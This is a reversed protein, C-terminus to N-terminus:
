CSNTFDCGDKIAADINAIDQRAESEADFVPSSVADDPPDVLAGVGHPGIYNGNVDFNPNGQRDFHPTTDVDQSHDEFRSMEHDNFTVTPQFNIINQHINTINNTVQNRQVNVLPGYGIFDGRYSYRRATVDMTGARGRHYGHQEAFVGRCGGNVWIHGTAPNYGWTNNIICANRGIQRVLIPASFRTSCEHYGRKPSSCVITDNAATAQSVHFVAVLSTAALAVKVASEMM